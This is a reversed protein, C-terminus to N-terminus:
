AIGNQAPTCLPLPTPPFPLFRRQEGAGRSGQMKVRRSRALFDQFVKFAGIQEDNREIVLALPIAIVVEECINEL